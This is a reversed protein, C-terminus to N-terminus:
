DSLREYVFIDPNVFSIRPNPLYGPLKYIFEAILQYNTKGDRLRTFFECDVRHLDCIYSDEFRDVTFSDVILYEPQRDEIGEEGVNYDYYKGTPIEIGPFKILILPYNHASSFNERPITPPYLTYEISKGVPLKNIYDGALIRSDNTLLLSVSLVRLFSFLIVLAISIIIINAYIQSSKSHTYALIEQAFFSALIALLPFIPLFFREQVNYSLLFPLDLVLVSLLIALLATHQPKLDRDSLFNKVLFVLVFIVAALV